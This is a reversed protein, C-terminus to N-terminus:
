NRIVIIKCGSSFVITKKNQKKTKNRKNNNNSNKQVFVFTYKQTSYSPMNVSSSFFIFYDTNINSAKLLRAPYRIVETARIEWHYDREEHFPDVSSKKIFVEGNDGQVQDFFSFLVYKSGNDKSYWKQFEAM